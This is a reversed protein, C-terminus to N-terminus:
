AIAKATEYPLKTGAAPWWRGMLGFVIPAGILMFVLGEFVLQSWFDPSTFAIDPQQELSAWGLVLFNYLSHLIMPVLLTRTKVYLVCAVMGFVFAGIPDFHLLGFILSSGIMGRIMGWKETLRGFLLGRFITEEILPALVVGSILFSLRSESPSEWILETVLESDLKAIPYALVAIAGLSYFILGIAMFIIPWWNYRPPVSGVLSRPSLRARLMVLLIWSALVLQSAVLGISGAFVGVVGSVILFLIFWRSQFRFFRSSTQTVPTGCSPCFNVSSALESKCTVCLRTPASSM